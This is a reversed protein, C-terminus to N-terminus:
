GRWPARANVPFGRDNDRINHGTTRICIASFRRKRAKTAIQPTSRTSLEIANSVFAVVVFCDANDASGRNSWHKLFEVLSIAVQDNIDVTLEYVAVFGADTRKIRGHLTAIRNPFSQPHVVAANELKVLMKVSQHARRARQRECLNRGAFFDDILDFARERCILHTVAHVDAQSKGATYLNRRSHIWTQILALRRQDYERLVLRRNIRFRTQSQNRALDPARRALNEIRSHM